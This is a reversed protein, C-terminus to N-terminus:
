DTVIRDYTPDIGAFAYNYGYLPSDTANKICASFSKIRTNFSADTPLFVRFMRFDDFYENDQSGNKLCSNVVKQAISRSKPTSLRVPKTAFILQDKSATNLVSDSRTSNKLDIIDGKFASGDGYVLPYTQAVIRGRTNVTVSTYAPADDLEIAQDLVYFNNTDMFHVLSATSKIVGVGLKETSGAGINYLYSEGGEIHTDGANESDHEEGASTVAIVKDDTNTTVIFGPSRYLLKVKNDKETVGYLNQTDEETSAYGTLCVRLTGKCEQIGSVSSLSLESILESRHTAVNYFSLEKDQTNATTYYFGNDAQSYLVNDPPEPSVLQLSGTSFDLYWAYLQTNENVVSGQKQLAKEVATLIFSSKFTILAGKSDAWYINSPTPLKLGSSLVTLKNNAAHDVKYFATGNYAYLNSDQLHAFNQDATLNTKYLKPQQFTANGQMWQSFIVAGVILLLMLLIIVLPKRFGSKPQQYSYSNTEEPYM